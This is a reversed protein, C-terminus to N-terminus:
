RCQKQYKKSNLFFQMTQKIAENRATDKEMFLEHKGAIQEIHCCNPKKECFSHQYKNSVFYDKEAQLIILPTQIRQIRKEDMLQDTVKFSELIWHFSTGKPASKSFKRKEVFESFAYRAKSGTFTKHTLQSRFSPIKWKCPLFSCYGRLFFNAGRELFSFLHSRYKIMPASLAVSKFLSKSHTQLYDLVIAGGKSHAILFLNSRDLERDNLIFSIFAELDKRYLTYDESYSMKASESIKIEGSQSLSVPLFVPRSFGQNRHDYTYIPSWGQLYFDYFLEMYRFLSEEKGNVFVLSGNKGRRKGFKGYSLLTQNTGQFSGVTYF